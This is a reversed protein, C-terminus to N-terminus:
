TWSCGMVRIVRSPRFKPAHRRGLDSFRMVTSNRSGNTQGSSGVSRLGYTGDLKRHMLGNFIETVLANISPLLFGPIRAFSELGLHATIVALLAVSGLLRVLLYSLCELLLRLLQLLILLGPPRSPLRQTDIKRVLLHSVRPARAKTRRLPHLLRSEPGLAKRQM